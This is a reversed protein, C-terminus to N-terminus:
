SAALGPRSVESHTVEPKIFCMPSGRRLSGTFYDGVPLLQPFWQLWSIQVGADQQRVGSGLM